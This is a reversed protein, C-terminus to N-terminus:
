VLQLREALSFLQLAHPSQLARAHGYWGGLDSAFKLQIEPRQHPRLLMKIWFKALLKYIQVPTPPLGLQDVHSSFSEVLAPAYSSATGFYLRQLYSLNAKEAPILHNCKLEPIMGAAFGLKIGEWVIQVDGASALSTGKRDTAQLKGQEIASAYRQLIERRVAFGTGNPSYSGWTAPVCSYGFDLQRQQFKEPHQEFWPEVPDVYEVTIQGPGWVGVNPYDRFYRQLVQLYNPAPENDDDFFVVIPATTEHIARCRAATLGQRPEVVYRAFPIVELFHHVCSLEKVSTSSNNDVLIIEISKTADSLSQIASLLRVLLSPKPNHTCVAITFELKSITTM